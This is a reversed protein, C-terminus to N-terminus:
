DRKAESEADGLLRDLLALAVILAGTSTATAVHHVVGADMVELRNEVIFREADGRYLKLPNARKRLEILKVLYHRAKQLDQVGNKKRWRAVYKTINGKFYGTGFEEACFDWHQFNSKYHEGGVQIDNATSM